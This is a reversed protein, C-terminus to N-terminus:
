IVDDVHQYINGYLECLAIDFKLQKSFVLIQDDRSM